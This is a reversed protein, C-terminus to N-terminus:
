AMRDALGMDILNCKLNKIRTPKQVPAGVDEYDTPEFSVDGFYFQREVAAGIRMDWYTVWVEMDEVVNIFRRAEGYDTIPFAVNNHKIQRRNIKDIRVEGKANRAESVLQSGIIGYGKLPAPFPTGNYLWIPKDM